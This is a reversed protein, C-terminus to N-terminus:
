TTLTLRAIHSNISDVALVAVLCMKWGQPTLVVPWECTV